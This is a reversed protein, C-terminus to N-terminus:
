IRYKKALKKVAAEYEAPSLSKPIRQKAEAYRRYRECEAKFVARKMVTTCMATVRRGNITRKIQSGSPKPKM